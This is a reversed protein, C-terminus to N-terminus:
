EVDRGERKDLEREYQKIRELDRDRLAICWVSIRRKWRPPHEGHIDYGKWMWNSVWGLTRYWIAYLVVYVILLLGLALVVALVVVAAKGIAEYPLSPWPIM